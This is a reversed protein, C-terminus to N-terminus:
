TSCPILISPYSWHSSDQTAFLSLGQRYALLDEVCRVVGHVLAIGHKQLREINSESGRGVLNDKAVLDHGQDHLYLALRYDWFGCGSTILVNLTDCRPLLANSDHCCGPM